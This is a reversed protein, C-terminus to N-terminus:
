LCGFGRAVLRLLLSAPSLRLEPRAFYWTTDPTTDIGHNIAWMGLGAQYEMAPVIERFGKVQRM